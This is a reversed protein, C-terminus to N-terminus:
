TCNLELSFLKYLIQVTFISYQHAASRSLCQTQSCCDTAIYIVRQRNQALESFVTVFIHSETGENGETRGEENLLELFASCM